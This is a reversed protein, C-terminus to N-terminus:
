GLDQYPGDILHHFIELSPPFLEAERIKHDNFAIHLLQSGDHRTQGSLLRTRGTCGGFTLANCPLHRREDDRQRLTVELLTSSIHTPVRADPTIFSM